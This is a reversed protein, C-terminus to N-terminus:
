QHIYDAQILYYPQPYRDDPVLLKGGVGIQYSTYNIERDGTLEIHIQDEPRALNMGFKCMDSNRCISFKTLGSMRGRGPPIIYGRIYVNKGNLELAASPVRDKMNPDPELISYDIQQYGPPVESRVFVWWGLFLGGLVGGLWMGTKALRRGTYEEPTRQIQRLAEYGCYIALLPIIIMAWHFFMALTAVAFAVSLVAWLSVARYHPPSPTPPSQLEASM